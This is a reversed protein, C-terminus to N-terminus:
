ELKCIQNEYADLMAQLQPGESAGLENVGDRIGKVLYYEVQNCIVGRKLVQLYKKSYRRRVESLTCTNASAFRADAEAVQESTWDSTAEVIDNVAMQLGKKANSLSIKELNGLFRLPQHEPDQSRHTEPIFYDVYRAFFTKLQEYDENSISKSM